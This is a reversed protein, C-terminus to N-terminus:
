RNFSVINLRGDTLFGSGESVGKRKIFQLLENRVYMGTDKKPIDRLSIITKGVAKESEEWNRSLGQVYNPMALTFIKEYCTDLPSGDIIIDMVNDMTKDLTYRLERSFHLFGRETNPNDDRNLRRANGHIIDSLIRGTITILVITDAYPMLRYVDITNVTKRKSNFFTIMSTGDILTFDIAQGTDRIVSALADTIFNAMPNEFSDKLIEYDNLRFEETLELSGVSKKLEAIARGANTNEYASDFNSNSPLTGTPIVSTHILSNQDSIKLITKGYFLGNYGAQLVPIKNVLNKLELGNINLFDHTHGGIILDIKQDKLNSALELDGMIKVAAFTSGLKYGLHSLIIISDCFWSLKDYLEKVSKLPNTISFDSGERSRIQGPTTLGIIGIRVGKIVIVAGPYVLGDLEGDHKLNASLVPFVADKRISQKLTQLGTDFDHNGLVTADVGALTFASYIPNCIFDKGDYGTLHDMPSGTSDDGASLFLVGTDYRCESLEREKQVVNVIKSFVPTASYDEGFAYINCHLDNIHFIKLLFPKEKLNDRKKPLHSADIASFNWDVAFVRRDNGNAGVSRSYEQIGM